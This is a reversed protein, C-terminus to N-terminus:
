RTQHDSSRTASKSSPQTPTSGLERCPLQIWTGDATREQASCPSSTSIEGTKQVDFNKALAPVTLSALAAASGVFIAQKIRM